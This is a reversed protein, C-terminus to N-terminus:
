ARTVFVKRLVALIEQPSIKPVPLSGIMPYAM